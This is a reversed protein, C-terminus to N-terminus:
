AKHLDDWEGRAPYSYVPVLVTSPLGRPLNKKPILIALPVILVVLVVILAIVLAIYLIRRSRPNKSQHPGRSPKLSRM